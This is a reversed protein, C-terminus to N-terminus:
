QKSFGVTRWAMWYHGTISINMTKENNEFDWQERYWGTIIWYNSHEM